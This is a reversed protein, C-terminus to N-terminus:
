FWTALLLLAMGCVAAAAVLTNMTSGRRYERDLTGIDKETALRSRYYSLRQQTGKLHNYDFTLRTYERNIPHQMYLNVWMM